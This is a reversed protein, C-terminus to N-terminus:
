SGTFQAVASVASLQAGMEMASAGLKVEFFKICQGEYDKVKANMQAAKNDGDCEDSNGDLINLVLTPAADGKKADAEM